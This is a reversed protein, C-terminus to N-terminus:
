KVSEFVKKIKFDPTIKKIADAFIIEYEPLTEILGPKLLKGHYKRLLGYKEKKGTLLYNFRIKDKKKLKTLSYHFELRPTLSFQEAFSKGTILSKGYFLINEKAFNGKDFLTYFDYSKIHIPLTTTKELQRKIKQSEELQNKLPIKQFIVAIDIDKPESNEL